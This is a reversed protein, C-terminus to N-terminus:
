PRKFTIMQDMLMRSAARVDGNAQDLLGGYYGLPDNRDHLDIHSVANAIGTVAVTEEAINDPLSPEQEPFEFTVAELSKISM